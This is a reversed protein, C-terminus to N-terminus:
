AAHRRPARARVRRQRPWRREPQVRIRSARQADAMLGVEALPKGIVEAAPWGLLAEAAGNWYTVKGTADTVLVAHQVEDLVEAQMDLRGENERRETVDRFNLVIGSVEPDDTRNTAIIDVWRWEGDARQMRLETEEQNGPEQGRPAARSGRGARWQSPGAGARLSRRAFEPDYGLVRNSAPSAYALKGEPSIIAFADSANALLSSYRRELRGHVLGLERMRM